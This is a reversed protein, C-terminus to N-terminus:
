ARRRPTRTQAIQRSRRGYADNDIGVQACKLITLYHRIVSRHYEQYMEWTMWCLRWRQCVQGAEAIRGDHRPKRMLGRCYYSPPRIGCLTLISPQYDNAWYEPGTISVQRRHATAYPSPEDGRPEIAGVLQVALYDSTPRELPVVLWRGYRRSKWELLIPQELQM